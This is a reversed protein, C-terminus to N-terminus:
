INKFDVFEKIGFKKRQVENMMRVRKKVKVIEPIQSKNKLYKVAEIGAQYGWQYMDAGYACLAGRKVLGAESTFIPINSKNCENLITEFSAFVTNDPLAFFAEINKSILSQVIQQTESSNSVAGELLKINLKKCDEKIREVALVSQPEAQNYIIGLSKINPLIQKLLYVSTDIYEQTEYVGFLNKPVKKNQDLLGALEPSPSVMMCVPITKSKQIASVTAVTPNTAIIDVEESIFYDCIQVMTPFDGQANRYIIKLSNNEESYGSDKLAAYFGNKAQELTEDKFADLFGITPINNQKKHNCSFNLISIFLLATLSFFKMFIKINAM